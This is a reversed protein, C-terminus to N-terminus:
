IISYDQATAFATRSVFTPYYVELSFLSAVFGVQGHSSVKMELGSVEDVM